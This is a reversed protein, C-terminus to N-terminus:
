DSEYDKRWIKIKNYIFELVFYLVLLYIITTFAFINTIRGGGVDLATIFYVILVTKLLLDAYKYLYIIFGIYFSVILSYIWFFNKGFLYIAEGFNTITLNFAGTIAEKAVESPYTLYGIHRGLDIKLFEISDKSYGTILSALKNGLNYLLIMYSENGGNPFNNYVGVTGDVAIATARKFLYNFTDWFDNFHMFKYASVAMLFVGLISFVILNKFKLIPSLGALGMLAIFIATSKFGTLFGLLMALIYLLFLRYKACKVKTFLYSNFALIGGPLYYSFFNYIFGFHLTTRFEGRGIDGLLIHYNKFVFLNIFLVAILIFFSKFLIRKYKKCSIYFSINEKKNFFVVLFFTVISIEIFIHIFYLVKMESSVSGGFGHYFFLGIYPFILYIYLLGILIKL